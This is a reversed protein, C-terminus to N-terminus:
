SICLMKGHDSSNSSNNDDALTTLSFVFTLSPISKYMGQASATPSPARPSPRVDPRQARVAEIASDKLLFHTQHFNELLICVVWSAIQVYEAANDEISTPYKYDDDNLKGKLSKLSFGQRFHSFANLAVAIVGPLLLEEDQTRLEAAVARAVTNM